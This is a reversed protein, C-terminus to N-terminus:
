LGFYRRFHFLERGCRGGASELSVGGSGLGGLVIFQDDVDRCLFPLIELPDSTCLCSIRSSLVRVALPFASARLRYCGSSLRRDLQGADSVHGVGCGGGIELDYPGFRRGGCWSEAVDLSAM